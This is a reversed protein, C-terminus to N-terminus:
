ITSVRRTGRRISVREDDVHREKEREREKRETGDANTARARAHMLREVIFKEGRHSMSRSRSHSFSLFLLIYRSRTRHNGDDARRSLTLSRPRVRSPSQLTHSATCHSRCTKVSARIRSNTAQAQLPVVRENSYSSMKRLLTRRPLIPASYHFGFILFKKTRRKPM